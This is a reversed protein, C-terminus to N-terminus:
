PGPGVSSPTTAFLTVVQGCFAKLDDPKRSSVLPDAQDLVEDVPFTDGRDLHHGHGGVGYIVRRRM